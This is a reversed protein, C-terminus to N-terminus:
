SKPYSGLLKFMQSIDKLNELAIKLNEDKNHGDADIFFNYKWLSKKSPRSEILTLNINNDNFIKVAKYLAGIENKLSFLISTRDFGSPKNENYGIILFRTTNNSIDEISNFLTPLNYKKAAMEPCIAASFENESALKAALSNSSVEILEVGNMNNFIWNKCQGFSQPHSYIKTIKNIDSEKTSFMHSIKLEIESIIKLDSDVFKDLTYNVTGETSNEIPVVGYDSEGKEVSFFVSDISSTPIFNVASGFKKVAALHTFTTEPGLFSVKLPKELNRCASIIETFISIISNDPIESKNLDKLKEFIQKEREPIYIYGNESNKLEGVKTVAISRDLILDLISNDIKNIENRLNNLKKEKNNKLTLYFM